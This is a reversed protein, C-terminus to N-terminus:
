RKIIKYSFAGDKTIVQLLYLGKTLDSLNLKIKEGQMMKKYNSTAVPKGAIDTLITSFIDTNQLAVIMVFDDTYTPYISFLSEKSMENIGNPEGGAVVDAFFGSADTSGNTAYYSLKLNGYEQSINIPIIFEAEFEGNAVTTITQQLVSDQVIINVVPSQPTNGLTTKIYPKDIVKVTINGNFGTLQNGEDDTIIGKVTILGGPRITDLPEGVQIGNVTETLATFEPFAMKLAPDGLLSWIQSMQYNGLTEKAYKQINGLTRNQDSDKLFDILAKNYSFNLNAYALTVPGFVAIGGGIENNLLSTGGSEIVPDYFNAFCGTATIFVPLKDANVWSEIQEKTLVLEQAWTTNSGHGTYNILLRGSEIQEDISENVEPYRPGEPTSILKYFDLYTKTTNFPYLGMTVSNALSDAQQLHLNNDGDDAIFCIENKWNGLTAESTVYHIVKNVYTQADIITLAPIRGIALDIVGSTGEDNDLWGFFDDTGFSAVRNLSNETQWVPVFNTNNEIRDKYDYSAGGMLLLYKPKNNGAKDYIYKVFDRIATVDQAGSSFENFIKEPTTIISSLGDNEQHFAALQGAVDIFEGYTIIIFEAPELGHLNQNEVEEEFQPSLTEENTFAIFELLSDTELKFSLNTGAIDFDINTVDLTNTVNWIHIGEPVDAINFQTVDGSGVAEDNRFSFSGSDYNLNRVYNINFYDLWVSATDAAEFELKINFTNSSAYFSMTDAIERGFLTSGDNIKTIVIEKIVDDNIYIKLLGNEFTRGALNIKMNILSTLEAEPLTIDFNASSNGQIEEGFWKRGSQLLNINEDEQIFYDNSTTVTTTASQISQQQNEIRKGEGLDTTLFYYTYDSYYNVQHEFLKAEDNFKWKAPGEGYFLIYDDPDFSGDDEGAVFIANEQLDDYRFKSNEEPLMGNGNGFIRIDKPNITSPDIGFNVLDNYGIKYIGTQATSIKFWNGSSLISNQSVGTLNLLVIIALAPFVPILNKM